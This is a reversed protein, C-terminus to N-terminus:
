EPAGVVKRSTAGIGEGGEERVGEKGDSHAEPSPIGFALTSYIDIPQSADYVYKDIHSGYGEFFDHESPIFLSPYTSLASSFKVDSFRTMYRM